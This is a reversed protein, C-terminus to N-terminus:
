FYRVARVAVENTKDDSSLRGFVSVNWASEKEEESSSWYWRSDIPQGGVAQLMKSIFGDQPNSLVKGITTSKTNYNAVALLNWLEGASPLYWGNGHRLCWEAAPAQGWGLQNIIMQTQQAGLGVNCYKSPENENVLQYIDQCYKEDKDNQWKTEMEDLSVALGHGMGDLFFIVGCSGDDFWIKGGITAKGSRVDELTYNQPQMYSMNSYPNMQSSNYANVNDQVPQQSQYNNQPYAQVPQNQNFQASQQPYTQQVPQRAIPQVPMITASNQSAAYTQQSVQQETVTAIPQHQGQALSQKVRNIARVITNEMENWVDNTQETVNINDPTVNCTVVLETGNQTLTYAYHRSDSPTNNQIIEEAYDAVFGDMKSKEISYNQAFVQLSLFCLLGIYILRKM